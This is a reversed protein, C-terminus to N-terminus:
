VVSKRDELKGDAVRGASVDRNVDRLAAAFRTPSIGHQALAELDVRVQVERETGGLVNIESVGSVRELFPEIRDTAFDRLRRVDFGPDTTGLVIWAIYDRNEPDGDSVVPEDVNEPYSPVENLKQVVEQMAADGDMGTAFQLRITGAGQYATSTVLVLDTLGLLREEQPDIVSREIEEPSAGPWSTAVTIVLTDVTPTLAIPLRSLSLLGALLVILIGITVTVPQRIALRPLDM